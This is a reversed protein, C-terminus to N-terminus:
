KLPSIRRMLDAFRPDSRLPDWLPDLKLSSLAILERNEYTKELWAFAQDNERLGLYIIAFSFASVPEQQSKAKLENLIRLAESVWCPM